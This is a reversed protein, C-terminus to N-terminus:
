SCPVGTGVSDVNKVARNKQTALSHSFRESRQCSLLCNEQVSVPDKGAIQLPFPCTVLAPDKEAIQLQIRKQLRSSGKSCNMDYITVNGVCNADSMTVNGVSTRSRCHGTAKRATV